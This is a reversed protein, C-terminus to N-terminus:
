KGFNACFDLLSIVFGLVATVSVLSGCTLPGWQDALCLYPVATSRRNSMSLSDEPSDLGVMIIGERERTSLPLHSARPCVPSPEDDAVAACRRQTSTRWNDGAM